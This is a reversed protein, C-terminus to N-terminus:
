VTQQFVGRFFSLTTQLKGNGWGNREVSRFVADFNGDDRPSLEVTGSPFIGLAHLRAETTWLEDLSLTSAPAFAFARDLLIPILTPQPEFRIGTLRPKDVSNWYKVAADLNGELFYTTALFDNAYADRPDIELALQLWRVTQPYNKQRFAIGALET